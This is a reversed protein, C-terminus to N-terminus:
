PRRMLSRSAAVLGGGSFALSPNTEAAGSVRLVVSNVPRIVQRWLHNYWMSIHCVLRYIRMLGSVRCRTAGTRNM